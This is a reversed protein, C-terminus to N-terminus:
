DRFCSSEPVQHRAELVVFPTVVARITYNEDILPGLDNRDHTPGREERLIVVQYDHHRLHQEVDRGAPAGERVFRSLNFADLVVPRQQDNVWLTALLVQSADASRSSM